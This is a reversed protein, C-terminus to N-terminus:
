TNFTTTTTSYSNGNATTISIKYTKANTWGSLDPTTYKKSNTSKVNLTLDVDEKNLVLSQTAIDLIKITQIKSDSTGVNRFTIAVCPIEQASCTASTSTQYQVHEILLSESASNAKESFSGTLLNNFAQIGTLAQFVIVSGISAVIAVMLLSGIVPSLARRSSTKIKGKRSKSFNMSFRALNM